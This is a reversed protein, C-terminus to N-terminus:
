AEAGSQDQWNTCWEEVQIAGADTKLLDAMKALTEDKAGELGGEFRANELAYAAAILMPVTLGQDEGRKKVLTVLSSEAPAEAKAAAEAKEKDAKTKDAKAKSAAKKEKGVREKEAKDAAKKKAERQKPTEKPPESAEETAQGGEEPAEGANEQ